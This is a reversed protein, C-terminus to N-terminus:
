ENCAPLIFRRLLEPSFSPGERIEGPQAGEIRNDSTLVVVLDRAPAVFIRQEYAGAAYYVGLEPYTWWQYGYGQGPGLTFATESSQAVWEAPIIQRGDWEGNHLFLYGFKAMDRPTLWIDQGGFYNGQPDRPWIVKSIGLPNFLFERAFSLTSRGTTETLIASLLHSCGGNYYWVSGPDYVMPQNLIFRVPNGSRLGQGWTHLLDDPGQWELGSSMTLLHELTLARKRADLNAIERGPFFAVVKQDVNRIFGEQIAIGILASTVSKTTSYLIHLNGPGYRPNPYLELVIYGHRVIILSDIPLSADDIFQLMEELVAADMGQEEPM